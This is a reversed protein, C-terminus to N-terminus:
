AKGKFELDKGKFELNQYLERVEKKDLEKFYGVKLGRPLLIPGFRIRILRSVKLGQSEWLRRVERNRGEALVVHYWHNAGTGGADEIKDFHAMGDELKVGKLLRAITDQRVKGLLRVAYEREIKTRPHMVHNAFEGDTTFILLGGTNLDLRGISVWRKGRLQPLKDFVTPRGEPDKRTVMEGTPKHYLLIRPEEAFGSSIRVVRGDLKVVDQDNLRDGLKALRDNIALRGNEIWGEIERRSGLGMNALVKQLKEGSKPPKVDTPNKPAIRKRMGTRNKPGSSNRADGQKRMGGQKKM